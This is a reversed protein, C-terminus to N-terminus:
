RGDLAVTPSTILAVLQEERAHFEELAVQTVGAHVFPVSGFALQDSDVYAGPDAALLADRLTTAQEWPM